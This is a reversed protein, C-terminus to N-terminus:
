VPYLGGDESVEVVRGPGRIEYTTGRFSYRLPYGKRFRDETADKAAQWKLQEAFGSLRREPVRLGLPALVMALLSWIFGQRTM